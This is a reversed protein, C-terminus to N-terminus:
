INDITVHFNLGARGRKLGNLLRFILRRGLTQCQFVEHPMTMDLVCGEKAGKYTRTFAAQGM